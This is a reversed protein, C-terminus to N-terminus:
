TPAPDNPVAVRRMSLADIARSLGNKGAAWLVNREIRVSAPKNPNANSTSKSRLKTSGTKCKGAMSRLTQIIMSAVQAAPTKVREHSSLFAVQNRNPRMADHIAKRERGRFFVSKAGLTPPAGPLSRARPSMKHICDSKELYDRAKSAAACLSHDDSQHRM